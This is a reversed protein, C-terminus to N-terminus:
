WPQALLNLPDRSDEGHTVLSPAAVSILLHRRPTTPSPLSGHQAGLPTFFHFLHCCSTRRTASTSPADKIPQWPSLLPPCITAPTPNRVRVTKFISQPFLFQLDCPPAPPRHVAHRRPRIPLPAAQLSGLFPFVRTPRHQASLGSPAPGTQSIGFFFM